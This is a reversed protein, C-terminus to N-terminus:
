ISVTENVEDFFLYNLFDCYPKVLQCGRVVEEAFTPKLVEKDTYRHMFFLQKRRLLDIEPHDASYGKPATKMTEGWVEPFYVRFADAEIINKLENANYDIEQRFKSLHQATPQWMGAGLFSENGPQLHIYYDIRGSHRGGPGIAAAFNPKYPSKDKSFRIDRNIRFICDKVDTNPLPEFLGVGTLVRGVWGEFEAKAMEYRKRNAQFWDRHNNQVLERLFDLTQATLEAKTVTKTAM